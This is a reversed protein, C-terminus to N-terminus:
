YVKNNSQQAEKCQFRDGLIRMFKEVNARPGRCAIDDVYSAVEINLEDHRFVCPENKGQKFGISVLWPHM